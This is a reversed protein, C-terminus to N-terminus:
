ELSQPNGAPIEARLRRLVEVPIAYFSRDFHVPGGRQSQPRMTSFTVLGVVEGLENLIPAGSIGGQLEISVELVRESCLESPKIRNVLGSNCYLNEEFGGAEPAPFGLTLIREGVEVLESYGLILPLLQADEVLRLIAVDDRSGAPVHISAVHRVGTKTVVRVDDPDVVKGTSGNTIVHRNTAVENASIAFGSGTSGKQQIWAVSSAFTKVSQNLRVFDPRTVGLLESHENFLDTYDARLRQRAIIELGLHVQSRTKSPGLRRFHALAQEHRSLQLFHRALEEANGEPNLPLGEIVIIWKRYKATNNRIANAGDRIRRLLKEGENLTAESEETKTTGTDVASRRALWAEASNKLTDWRDMALRSESELDHREHYVELLAENDRPAPIYRGMNTEYHLLLEQFRKQLKVAETSVTERLLTTLDAATRALQELRSQNGQSVRLRQQLSSVQAPSLLHSDAITIKRETKTGLDRATVCLLCNADIEFTVEIKPVGAKTPPIGELQFQGIKFNKEPKPDEGQYIQISVVTQLDEVTTYDGKIIKAPISSHKPILVDFKFEGPAVYSKIGLSFPAVDLVLLDKKLGALIAAQIAAGRAVATVPDLGSNPELGFAKKVCRQVAPMLGGGGILMVRQPRGKIKQCTEEIRKLWPAALQELEVRQLSLEVTKAGAMQPLSLTWSSHSSLEIKLEECAQRLRRGPLGQSIDSGTEKKVADVFHAYLLEDLDCSGLQNDGEIESVESVGGGVGLLSLDLTGAGLDVVLVTEDKAELTLQALCAATPEHILRRVTVNALNAATRTAQKQADNFYAPVTIVANDLPIKPPKAALYASIWDQPPAIGTAQLALASIRGAIISHLHEVAVKHAHSIIRASIEEPRYLQGSVKYTTDTGMKRKVRAVVSRPSKAMLESEPIGVVERGENDVAFVSPITRRGRWEIVVPLGTKKNFLAIVSNSTGLDMGFWDLYTEVITQTASKAWEDARNDFDAKNTAETNPLEKVVLDTWKPGVLGSDALRKIRRFLRAREDQTRDLSRTQTLCLDALLEARGAKTLLELCREDFAAASDGIQKRRLEAARAYETAEEFMAIAKDTEGIREYLLGAMFFDGGHELIEARRKPEAGQATQDLASLAQGFAGAKEFLLSAAFHDSAMEAQLGAELFNGAAEEFLSWRKYVEAGPQAHATRVEADLATRATKVVQTLLHRFRDAETQLSPEITKARLTSEVEFLLHAAETFEKASLHVRVKSEVENRIEMLWEPQLISRAKIAEALCGLRRECDSARDMNGAARFHRSAEGYNSEAWFCEAAKLHAALRTDSDPLKEALALARLAAQAGSVAMWYAIAGALIGAEEALKAAESYRGLAAYVQHLPPLLAAPLNAFLRNWAPNGVFSRRELFRELIERLEDKALTGAKHREFIKALLGNDDGERALLLCIQQLVALQASKAGTLQIVKLAADLSERTVPRKSELAKLANRLQPMEGIVIESFPQHFERVTLAVQDPGIRAAFGIARLYLRQAEQNTEDSLAPAVLLKRLAHSSRALGRRPGFLSATLIDLWDGLLAAKM